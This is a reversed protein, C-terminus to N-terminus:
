WRTAKDARGQAKDRGSENSVVREAGARMALSTPKWAGSVAGSSSATSVTSVPPARPNSLPLHEKIALELQRVFENNGAQNQFRLHPPSINSTSLM